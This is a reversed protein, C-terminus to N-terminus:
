GVIAPRLGVVDLPRKRTLTSLVPVLVLVELFLSPIIM